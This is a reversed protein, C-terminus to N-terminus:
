CATLPPHDRLPSPGVTKTDTPTVVLFLAVVGGGILALAVILFQAM